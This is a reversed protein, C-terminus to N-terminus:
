KNMIGAFQKSMHARMIKGMHNRSIQRVKFFVSPSRTAGFRELVRQQLAKIDFDEAVVIAAAIDQLGMKNELGFVAADAVGPQDVLFQDIAAPDIKVGGSNIVESDRGALVILGNAMLCGRDGPYFWGDRFSRATAEPNKYYEHVMYPTKVRILGEEGQLLPEQLENVIELQADPFLYGAVSSQTDPTPNFLCAGSVETSGYVSVIHACLHTAINKLLTPSALGGTYRVIKLAPLSGKNNAVEGVLGALQVPSGYLCAISYKALLGAVEGQSSFCYLPTGTILSNVANNIGAVTSIQMLSVTSYSGFYAAQSKIRAMIQESSLAVAKRNGTTGSTLIIRVPCTPSDYDHHNIKHSVNKVDTLWDTDICITKDAPFPATPRDTIVWNYALTADLPAYGHNSCTITAEHFLALTVVWDLYKDPLSTVVIQGPRIGAQRLKAAIIQVSLLLQAFTLQHHLAQVAISNPGLKARFLLHNILNPM